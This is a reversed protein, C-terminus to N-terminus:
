AAAEGDLLVAAAHNAAHDRLAQRVEVREAPHLPAIVQEFTLGLITAIRHVTEIKFVRGQEFRYVTVRSVRLDDALAEVAVRTRYRHLWLRIGAHRGEDTVEDRSLGIM